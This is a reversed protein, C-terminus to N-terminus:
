VKEASQGEQKKMEFAKLVVQMQRPMTYKFEVDGCKKNRAEDETVWMFAVHEVPDLNVDDSSEVEVLFSFKTVEVAYNTLSGGHRRSAHRSIYVRVCFPSELLLFFSLLFCSFSVADGGDRSFCMEWGVVVVVVAGRARHRDQDRDM